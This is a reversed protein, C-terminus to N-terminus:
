RWPGTIDILSVGANGSATATATTTGQMAGNLVMFNRGAVDGSGTLVAMQLLTDAALSQPVHYLGPLEARVAGAVTNIATNFFRRSMKLEGDVFSPFAGLTPDSGSTYNYAGTYPLCYHLVASGLGAVGRPMAHLANAGHDLSGTSIMGTASNGSLVCAYADGAARRSILDGFGFIPGRTATALSYSYPAINILFFRSDAAVVYANGVTSAAGSKPWYWGGSMQAATPFLGTGTSVDSMTEYGVVRAYQTGTDDVRLMHGNAEASLSRYVALNTGTFVKEWGAPAMRATITGTATGDDAQTAFSVTNGSVAVVKQEGNLAEVGAGAVLIVSGVLAPFASGFTLTAVGGSVVLSTATQLGWGTVLLADLVAILSGAVGNLTPAGSMSSSIYKVSTDVVSTM